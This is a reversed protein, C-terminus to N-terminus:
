SPSPSYRGECGRRGGMDECTPGPGACLLYCFCKLTNRSCYSTVISVLFHQLKRFKLNPDSFAARDQNWSISGPEDQGPTRGLELNGIAPVKRDRLRLKGKLFISM